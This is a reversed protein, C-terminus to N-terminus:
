SHNRKGTPPRGEMIIATAAQMLRLKGEPSLARWIGLIALEDTAEIVQRPQQEEIAAVEDGVLSPKLLDEMQCGLVQAIRYLHDSRPSRGSRGSILDFVYTRSLGAARTLEQYSLGAEQMRRQIERGIRSVAPPDDELRDGLM